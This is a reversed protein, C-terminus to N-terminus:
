IICIHKVNIIVSYKIKTLFECQLSNFPINQVYDKWTPNTIEESSM